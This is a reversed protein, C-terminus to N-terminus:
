SELASSTNSFRTSLTTGITKVAVVAIIAVFMILLVYEVLSAGYQSKPKRAEGKQDVDPM